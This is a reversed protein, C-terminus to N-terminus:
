ANREEGPTTGGSSRSNSERGGSATEPPLALAEGCKWCRPPASAVARREAAVFNQTGCAGCSLIM